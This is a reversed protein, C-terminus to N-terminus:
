ETPKVARSRRENEKEWVAISKKNKRALSADRSYHLGMVKSKQALLDSIDREDLGAERLWTAMTHRLGKPTLGTGIVGSGELKRKLRHWGSSFGDYTWPTGKSSALITVADHDPARALEEALVASVPIAAGEKTKDRAKWVVDGDLQDRLLGLADSPDLGTCYIMALAARLHPSAAALVTQVEKYSWARNVTPADKPRPKKIVTEAYNEKILGHPICYKFVQILFNRVRNAKDWSYKQALRDHIAALLPTDISSVPTDHIPKLIDACMQYERKSAASLEKFHDEQKYKAILGGLTGSKPTKTKKAEAKATIKSCEAFFEASGIPAKELDVKHGTARHYCRPKGHRDKFIKFGKVRVRTM